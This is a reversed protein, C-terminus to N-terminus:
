RVPSFCLLTLLEKKCAANMCTVSLPEPKTVGHVPIEKLRVIQSQFQRCAPCTINVSFTTSDIFARLERLPDSTEPM